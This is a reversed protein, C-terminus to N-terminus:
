RALLSLLTGLCRSKEQALNRFVCAYPGSGAHAEYQQWLKQSDRCLHSLLHTDKEKQPTYAPHQYREAGSLMWIGRLIQANERCQRSLAQYKARHAPNHAGLYQCIAAAEEEQDILSPCHVPETSVGAVREWVRQELETTNM